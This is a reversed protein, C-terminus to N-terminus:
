GRSFAGAPYIAIRSDKQQLFAVHLCQNLLVGLIDSGVINRPFMKEIVQIFFEGIGPFIGPPFEIGKKQFLRFFVPYIIAAVTRKCKLTVRFFGFRSVSFV